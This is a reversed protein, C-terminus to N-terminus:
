TVNCDRRLLALADTLKTDRDSLLTPQAEAVFDKWLQLYDDQYEQPAHTQIYTSALAPEFGSKRIKRILSLAAKSTLLAKPPVNAAVCVFLTLLSSDDAHGQTVKDWAASRLRDFQGVDSLTDEVWFYRGMFAPTQDFLKRVTLRADLLKPLDALVSVRVTEAVTRLTQPVAKPIQLAAAVREPDKRRLMQILKEFQHWDPMEKRNTMAVLLTTRIVAEADPECAQLDDASMGLHQALWLACQVTQAAGQRANLEALFEPYGALSWRALHAIHRDGFVSAENMGFHTSQPMVILAKLMDSGAKSRSLLSHDRLLEAAVRLDGHSAHQLHLSILNVLRERAKELEPRLFESGFYRAIQVMGKPAEQAMAELKAPTILGHAIGYHLAKEFFAREDFHSVANPTRSANPM